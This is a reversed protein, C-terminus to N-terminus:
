HHLDYESNSSSSLESDSQTDSLCDPDGFPTMSEMTLSTLDYDDRYDFDRKDTDGEATPVFCYSNCLTM